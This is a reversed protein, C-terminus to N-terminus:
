NLQKRRNRFKSPINKLEQLSCTLLIANKSVNTQKRKTLQCDWQSRVSPDPQLAGTTYAALQSTRYVLIQVWHSQLLDERNTSIDERKVTPWQPSTSFPPLNEPPVDTHRITGFTLVFSQVYANAQSFQRIATNKFSKQWLEPIQLTGAEFALLRVRPCAVSIGPQM